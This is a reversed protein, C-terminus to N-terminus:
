KIRNERFLNFLRYFSERAGEIHSISTMIMVRDLLGEQDDSEILASCKPCANWGNRSIIGVGSDFDKCKYETFPREMGSCFDCLEDEPKESRALTVQTRGEEDIYRRVEKGIKM